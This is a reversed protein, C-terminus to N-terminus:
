YIHLNLPTHNHHKLSISSVVLIVLNDTWYSKPVWLFIGNGTDVFIELNVDSMITVFPKSQKRICNRQSPHTGSLLHALIYIYIYQTKGNM